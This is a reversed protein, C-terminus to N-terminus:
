GCTGGGALVMAVPLFFFIVGGAPGMRCSRMVQAADTVRVLCSATFRFVIGAMAIGMRVDGVRRIGGLRAMRRVMQMSGHREFVSGRLIM